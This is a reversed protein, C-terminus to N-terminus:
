KGLGKVYEEQADLGAAYAESRTGTVVGTALEPRGPASLVWKHQGEGAPEVSVAFSKRDIKGM